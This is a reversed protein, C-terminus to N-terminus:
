YMKGAITQTSIGYSNAPSDLGIPAGTVGENCSHKFPYGDRLVGAQLSKDSFTRFDLSLPFDVFAPSVLCVLIVSSIQLGTQQM